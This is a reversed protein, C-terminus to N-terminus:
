QIDVRLMYNGMATAVLNDVVVFYTGAAAVTVTL